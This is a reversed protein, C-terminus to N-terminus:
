PTFPAGDHRQAGALLDAITVTRGTTPQTSWTSLNADTLLTGLPASEIEAAELAHLLKAVKDPASLDKVTLKVRYLRSAIKLPAFLRLIADVNKNGHTTDLHREVVVAHRVLDALVQVALLELRTQGQNDGMKKVGKRNLNLLWGTDDNVLGPSRQVLRLLRTAEAMLQQHTLGAGLASEPLSVVPVPPLEMLGPRQGM